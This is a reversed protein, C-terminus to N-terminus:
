QADGRRAKIGGTLKLGTVRHVPEGKVPRPKRNFQTVLIDWKDWFKSPSTLIDRWHAGNSWTESIKFAWTAVETALHLAHLTEGNGDAEERVMQGLAAETRSIDNPTFREAGPTANGMLGDFFLCFERARPDSSVTFSTEDTEHTERIQDVRSQDVRSQDRRQDPDPDARAEPKEQEPNTEPDPPTTTGARQRDRFRRVRETSSSAGRTIASQRSEWGHILVRGDVVDILGVDVARQMAPEVRFLDEDLVQLVHSLYEVDWHQTIDGDFCGFEAAIRWAEEVVVSAWFGARLFKRHHRHNADCKVWVAM